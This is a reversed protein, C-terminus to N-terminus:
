DPLSCFIAARCRGSPTLQLICRSVIVRGKNTDHLFQGLLGSLRETFMVVTNGYEVSSRLVNGEGSM